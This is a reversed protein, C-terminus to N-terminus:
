PCGGLFAGIFADVDSLDIFGFPVALDVLPDGAVFGAIFADVDSLDLFGFPFALDAVGCAAPGFSVDLVIPDGTYAVAFEQPEFGDAEFRVTYMGAPANVHYLGTRPNAGHQEGNQFGVGVLEVSAAIPQGAATVRGSIPIPRDVLALLGQWVQAAESQATSFSPQFSTGTEWLFAMAGTASAHAHIDGGLCCSSRNAGGYGSAISLDRAAERLDDDWPHFWCGYGYRVESAFSHVDGVLAFRRDDRFAIMTQTEAESAPSPGEYIDSSTTQSGGCQSWGFPYNRNLDVGFTGNGNNRRNKRWFGDVTFVHHYGDPNWVPAIWIERADVASTIRPDSGYGDLLREAAELAIVPTMIERAHHCSVILVAPEAEDITANDSIKLAYISRGEHTPPMAYKATLDVKQCLTPYAAAFVDMQALVADLDPYGSPVEPNAANLDAQIENFPRGVELVRPRLGRRDLRAVDEITAFIEVGGVQVAQGCGHIDFGMRGLALGTMQPRDSPIWVRRLPEEAIAGSGVASGLVLATALPLTRESM